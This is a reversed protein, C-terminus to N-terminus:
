APHRRLHFDPFQRHPRLLLSHPRLNYMRVTNDHAPSFDEVQQSLTNYFRLPM